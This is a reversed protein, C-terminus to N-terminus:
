PGNGAPPPTPWRPVPPPRTADRWAKYQQQAGLALIGAVLLLVMMVLTPLLLALVLPNQRVVSIIVVGLPCAAGIAISGIGNSRIDASSGTLTQAGVIVFMVGVFGVLLFLVTWVIGALGGAATSVVGTLGLVTFISTLVGNVIWLVAAATASGPRMPPYGPGPQSGATMEAEKALIGNDPGPRARGEQIM